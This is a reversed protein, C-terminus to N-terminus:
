VHEDLPDEGYDNSGHTGDKLLIVWGFIIGVIPILFLLFVLGGSWGLIM